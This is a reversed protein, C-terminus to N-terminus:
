RPAVGLAEYPVIEYTDGILPYFLRGSLGLMCVVHKEDIKRM